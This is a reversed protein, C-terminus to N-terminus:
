PTMTDAVFNSMTCHQVPSGGIRLPQPKTFCEPRNLAALRGSVSLLCHLRSKFPRRRKLVKDLDLRTNAKETIKEQYQSSVGESLQVQRSPTPEQPPELPEPAARTVEPTELYM